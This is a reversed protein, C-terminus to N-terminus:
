RNNFFKKHQEMIRNHVENIEKQTKIFEAKAEEPSLERITVNMNQKPQIKGMKAGCSKKKKMQSCQRYAGKKMMARKTHVMTRGAGMMFGIMFVLILAFIINMTYINKRFFTQKEAM